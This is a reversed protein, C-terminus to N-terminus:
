AFIAFLAASVSGVTLMAVLIVAVIRIAINNRENRSKM